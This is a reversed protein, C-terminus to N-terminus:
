GCVSYPISIGLDVLTRRRVHKQRRQLTPPPSHSKTTNSYVDLIPGTIVPHHFDEAASKQKQLPMHSTSQLKKIKRLPSRSQTQSPLWGINTKSRELERHKVTSGNQASQQLQNSITYPPLFVEEVKDDEILQPTPSLNFLSATDSVSNSDSSSTSQYSSM